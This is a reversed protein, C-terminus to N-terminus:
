EEMIKLHEVIRDRIDSFNEAVKFLESIFETDDIGSNICFARVEHKKPPDLVEWHNIRRYLEPVGQVGRNKWKEINDKFYQPGAFVIGTTLETNDRLEHMYELFKPKFKGAEDVIILKRTDNYNLRFSINNIMEHLSLGLDTGEVGMEMLIKKYFDRAPMSTTARVYFVNQKGEAFSRLATTKGAGPYGVIGIFKSNTLAEKCVAIVTNYNGTQLIDNNM